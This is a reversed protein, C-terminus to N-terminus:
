STQLSAAQTFRLEGDITIIITGVEYYQQSIQFSDLCTLITNAVIVTVLINGLLGTNRRKSLYM